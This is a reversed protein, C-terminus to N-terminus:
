EADGKDKKVGGKKAPTTVKTAVGEDNDVTLDTTVEVDDIETKLGDKVLRKKVKRAAGKDNYASLVNTIEVGSRSIIEHVEYLGNLNNRYIKYVVERKSM